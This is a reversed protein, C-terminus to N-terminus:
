GASEVRTLSPRPTICSQRQPPPLPEYGILADRIFAIRSRKRSQWLKWRMHVAASGGLEVEVRDFSKLSECSFGSLTPQFASANDSRREIGRLMM